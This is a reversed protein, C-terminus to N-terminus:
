NEDIAGLVEECKLLLAEASQRLLQPPDGRYVNFVTSLPNFTVHQSEQSAERTQGQLWSDEADRPDPRPGFVLIPGMGPDKLRVWRSLWPLRARLMEGYLLGLVIFANFPEGGEPFSNPPFFRSLAEAVRLDGEPDAMSTELGFCERLLHVAIAALRFADGPQVDLAYGVVVAARCEFESAQSDGFLSQLVPAVPHAGHFRFLPREGPPDPDMRLSILLNLVALISSEDWPQSNVVLIYRERERERRAEWFHCFSSTPLLTNLNDFPRLVAGQGQYAAIVKTDAETVSDEPLIEIDPCWM